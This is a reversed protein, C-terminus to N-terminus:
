SNLIANLLDKYAKKQMPYDCTAFVPERHSRVRAIAEKLPIKEERKVLGDMRVYSLASIVLSDFVNFPYEGLPVDGKWKVYDILYGM